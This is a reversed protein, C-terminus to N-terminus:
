RLRGEVGGRAKGAHTEVAGFAANPSGLWSWRGSECWTSMARASAAFGRPSGGRSRESECGTHM